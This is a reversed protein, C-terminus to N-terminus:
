DRALADDDTLRARLEADDRLSTQIALACNVADM